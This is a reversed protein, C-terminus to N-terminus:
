KSKLNFDLPSSGPVDTSLETQTNFKEPIYQRVEEKAGEMGVEGPPLKMKKNATIQVKYKGPPVKASYQGATITGGGGKGGGKLPVFAIQWEAIPTGDFTASGSVEHIKEGCGTLALSLGFLFLCQVLKM